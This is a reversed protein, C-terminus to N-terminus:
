RVCDTQETVFLSTKNRNYYALTYYKIPTTLKVSFNTEICSVGGESGPMAFPWFETYLM